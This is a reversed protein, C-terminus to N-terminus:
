GSFSLPESIDELYTAVEDFSPMLGRGAAEAKQAPGLLALIRLQIAHAVREGEARPACPLDYGDAIDACAEIAVRLVAEADRRAEQITKLAHDGVLARTMILSRESFGQAKLIEVTANELLEANM